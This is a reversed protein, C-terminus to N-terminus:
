FFIRMKLRDLLPVALPSWKWHMGGWVRFCRMRAACVHGILIPNYMDARWKALQEFHLMSIMAAAGHFWDDRANAYIIEGLLTTSVDIDTSSVSGSSDSDSDYSGIGPLFGVCQQASPYITRTPPASSKQAAPAADESESAAPIFTTKTQITAVICSVLPPMESLSSCSGQSERPRVFLFPLSLSLIKLWSIIQIDFIRASQLANATSWNKASHCNEDM